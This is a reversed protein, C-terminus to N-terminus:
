PRAQRDPDPQWRDDLQIAARVLLQRQDPRPRARHARHHRQRPQGPQASPDPQHLRAQRVAHRLRGRVNAPSNAHVRVYTKKGAVLDVSNNLDQIAQTVEISNVQMDPGPPPGAGAWLMYVPLFAEFLLTTQGDDWMQIRVKDVVVPGATLRFSGSGVGSGAPYVPSGHAAYNPSLNAGSFPRAWIRVGAKISHNYNFTLNADESYKFINPTDRNFEIYTVRNTQGLFRYYVPLFAEFLLTTQDDDWMQIRIQDVVPQGNTITFNGSGSGGGIPYVPSGHAAYSPSLQGNTFPRAWIRVGGVQRTRYDFTLDVNQNLALVDPTDPTLNINSVLDAADSFLLYVPLFAEFLLTTQGDNWMQIRIEDVVVTGTSISFYGSGQGSGLPYLQSAHATYNPTLAGNTFPRVWIRVGGVQNTIYDFTLNIDQNTRFINPSDPSLSINTVLHDGPAEIFQPQAPPEPM